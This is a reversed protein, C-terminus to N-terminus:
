VGEPYRLTFDLFKQTILADDRYLKWNPLRQEPFLLPIPDVYRKEPGKLTYRDRVSISNFSNAMGLHLHILQEPTGGERIQHFLRGIPQGAIVEEGENVCPTIHSYISHTGDGTEGHEIIVQNSYSSKISRVSNVVGGRVAMVELESPLGFYCIDDSDLFSAFDFGKHYIKPNRFGNYNVWGAFKPLQAVDIPAVLALEPTWIKIKKDVMHIDVLFFRYNIFNLSKHYV